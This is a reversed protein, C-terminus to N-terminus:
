VQAPVEEDLSAVQWKECRGGWRATVKGDAKVQIIECQNPCGKCIFSSTDYKFEAAEYGKFKTQQPQLEMEEMALLAIGIAGMIENHDPVTLPLKLEEEFAKVIAKNFAVGGQFLVPAKFEKGLGVNSIYNRVLAMALGYMIDPMSHGVQQKHIMDSEAFVTCRGAIRVPSTSSLAMEGFDKIDCGLRQAQHDLFSGTGAACVTNMAFDTVIGDRLLILKSDQGGIEIVTQVDPCANLAAVAHSTIENKIIDAGIIAGALYRASGTAGVGCVEADEPLEGGVYKMLSCIQEVPKGKTPIYLSARLQKNEDLAAIKTSVSGVDIGLFIKM